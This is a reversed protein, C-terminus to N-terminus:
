PASGTEKQLRDIASRLTTDNTKDVSLKAADAHQKALARNGQSLYARAARYHRDAATKSAGAEGYNRGADGLARAMQRYRGADRALGAEVDYLPAAEGPADRGDTIRAHLAKTALYSVAPSTEARDAFRQASEFDKDDCALHGRLINAAFRHRVVTDGTESLARAISAESEGPRDLRRLVSAHLLLVDSRAEGPAVRLLAESLDNDADQWRELLVWCAARNYAADAVAGADDATRAHDLARGYLRAAQEYERAEYATYAAELYQDARQTAPDVPEPAPQSTGCGVVSAAIVIPIVRHILKM